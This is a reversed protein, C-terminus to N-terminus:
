SVHHVKSPIKQATGGPTEQVVATLLLSLVLAALISIIVFDWRRLGRDIGPMFPLLHWPQRDSNWHRM